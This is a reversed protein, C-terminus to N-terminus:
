KEEGISFRLKKVADAKANAYEIESQNNAQDMETQM